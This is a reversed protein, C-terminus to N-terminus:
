VKIENNDEQQFIKEESKHNELKAM